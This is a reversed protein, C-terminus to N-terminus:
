IPKYILLHKLKIREEPFPPLLSTQAPPQAGAPAGEGAPDQRHPHSPPLLAPLGGQYPVTPAGPHAKPDGRTVGGQPLPRSPRLSHLACAVPPYVSARSASVDGLVILGGPQREKGPRVAAGGREEPGRPKCGGYGGWFTKVM